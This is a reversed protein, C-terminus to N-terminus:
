SSQKRWDVTLRKDMSQINLSLLYDKKHKIAKPSDDFPFLNMGPTLKINTGETQFCFPRQKCSSITLLSCPLILQCSFRKKNEKTFLKELWKYNRIPHQSTHRYTINVRFVVVTADSCHSERLMPFLVTQSEANPM